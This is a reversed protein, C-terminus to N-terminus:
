KPTFTSILYYLVMGLMLLFFPFCTIHMSRYLFGSKGDRKLKDMAANAVEVVGSNRHDIDVYM